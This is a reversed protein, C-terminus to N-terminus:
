AGWRARTGPEPLRTLASWPTFPRFEPRSSESRPVRFVQLSRVQTVSSATKYMNKNDHQKRFPPVCCGGLSERPQWSTEDEEKRIWQGPLVGTGLGEVGTVSVLGTHKSALLGPQLPFSGAASERTGDQQLRPDQSTGEAPGAAASEQGPGRTHCVRACM